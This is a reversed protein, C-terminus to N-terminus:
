PFPPLRKHESDINRVALGEIHRELFRPNLRFVQVAVLFNHISTVGDPSESFALCGYQTRYSTQGESEIRRICAAKDQCAGSFTQRQVQLLDASAQVHRTIYGSTDVVADWTRGELAKLGNNKTPDRDGVLKEIDTYLHPNSRGRNFLTVGHLRAHASTILAPVLFM